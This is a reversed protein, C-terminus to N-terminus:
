TYDISSDCYAAPAAVGAEVTYLFVLANTNKGTCNSSYCSAVKITVVLLFIKSIDRTGM